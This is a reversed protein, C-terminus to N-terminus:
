LEPAQQRVSGELLEITGNDGTVLGMPNREASAWMALAADMKPREPLPKM